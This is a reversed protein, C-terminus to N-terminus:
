QRLHKNYSLNPENCGKPFQSQKAYFTNNQARMPRQYVNPARWCARPPQNQGKRWNAKNKKAAPAPKKRLGKNYCYNPENSREAFQSQKAYFTNNQARRPAQLPPFFDFLLICFAFIRLGAARASNSQKECTAPRIQHLKAPTAAKKGILNSNAKNKPAEPPPKKDYTSTIASTVTMVGRPFNAKNQMFPTTKHARTSEWRAPHPSVPFSAVRHTPTKKIPM